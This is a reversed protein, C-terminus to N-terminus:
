ATPIKRRSKKQASGSFNDKKAALVPLKKKIEQWLLLIFMTLFGCFAKYRRYLLLHVKKTNGIIGGDFRIM